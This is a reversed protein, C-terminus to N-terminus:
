TMKAGAPLPISRAWGREPDRKGDARCWYFTDIRLDGSLTTSSDVWMWAMAHYKAHADIILNNWVCQASLSAKRIGYVLCECHYNNLMRQQSSQSNVECKPDPATMKMDNAWGSGEMWEFGGLNFTGRSFSVLFKLFSLFSSPTLLTASASISLEVDRMAQAIIVNKAMGFSKLALRM